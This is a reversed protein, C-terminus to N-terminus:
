RLVVCQRSTEFFYFVKIKSMRLKNLPLSPHPQPGITTLHVVFVSLSFLGLSSRVETDM